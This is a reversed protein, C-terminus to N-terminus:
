EVPQNCLPDEDAQGCQSLVFTGNEILGSGTPIHSQVVVIGAVETAGVGGFIGGYTGVSGGAQDNFEGREVPGFFTGDEAIDTLNLLLDPVQLPDTTGAEQEGDNNVDIVVRDFVIGTVSLDQFDGTILARGTVEAAQSSLVEEPTGAAVPLLDGDNGDSANLLGVYNGAYSVLGGDQESDPAVPATYTTNSYGNGVIFEGFQGGSVITVARTGRIDRVYATFLRDLSGDQATYAEYGVLDLAPRRTYVGNVTRDDTPVGAVTLTENEANYTFSELSQSIEEPITSIEEETVEDTSDTEDFPNGGGCASLGAVLALSIIKNKM